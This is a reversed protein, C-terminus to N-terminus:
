CTAIALATSFSEGDERERHSPGRDSGPSHSSNATSGSFRRQVRSRSRGPRTRINSHTNTTESRQNRRFMELPQSHNERTTLNHNGAPQSPQSNSSTTTVLVNSVGAESQSQPLGLGKGSSMLYSASRVRLGSGSCHAATCPKIAGRPSSLSINSLRRAQASLLSSSPSPSGHPLYSRSPHEDDITPRLRPTDSDDIADSVPNELVCDDSLISSSAGSICRRHQFSQRVGRLSWPSSNPYASFKRFEAHVDSTGPEACQKKREAISSSTSCLSVSRLRSRATDGQYPHPEALESDPAIPAPLQQSFLSSPPQKINPSLTASSTSTSTTSFDAPHM